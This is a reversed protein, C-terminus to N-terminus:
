GRPFRPIGLRALAVRRGRVLFPYLFRALPRWRSTAAVLRVWWKGPPGSLGALRHMADGGAYREGDILVVFGDELQDHSISLEGLVAPDARADILEVHDVADRLRQYSVYDSCYPCAGDYVIRVSAPRAGARRERTAALARWLSQGFAATNLAIMAASFLWMGLFIAIGLHMLETFLVIPARLRTWVLVPYALQSAITALAAAQLLFPWSLLVGPDFQRFQPLSLARWLAEGSWWQDGMAKAFGSAVYVICLHIRFLAVYPAPDAPLLTDVSPAPGRALMRDVSWARGVPAFISYFLAILLMAGLGYMWPLSSNRLLVFTAWTVVVSARTRYGITMFAAAIAHLALVAPGALGAELGAAVFLPALDSLRPIWPDVWSDSISWPVPGAPDLLIGRYRWMLYAQVLLIAGVLIRMAALPKVSDAESFLRAKLDAALPAEAASREM